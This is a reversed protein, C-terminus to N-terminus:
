HCRFIFEIPQLLQHLLALLLAIRGIFVQAAGEGGIQVVAAVEAGQQGSEITGADLQQFIRFEFEVL